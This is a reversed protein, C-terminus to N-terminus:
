VACTNNTKEAMVWQLNKAPKVKAAVNTNNATYKM